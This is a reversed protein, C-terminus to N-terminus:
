DIRIVRYFRHAIAAPTDTVSATEGVANVPNGLTTWSPAALDDKYQVRYAYGPVASWTLSVSGSEFTATTFQLPGALTNQARPTWNTMFYYSNTNGDPFLGQSVNPYQADFYVIHQAVGGPTYLAIAEGNASLQFGAHLHGNTSTTNQFVQDDAWILLFGHAPIITGAPLTWKLTGPLDTLHFGGVNVANTNPNFLELWDQFLGDAPDPIGFPGENDAVWENITIPLHTGSGNNTVTISDTANTLRVGYNNVGQIVLANLGAYLPVQLSWATTSTWTIPYEVGNIEISKVALSATGTLTIANSTTSFGNGGNSTIAFAINPSVATNVANSVVTARQSIFALHGAFNQAPLLRGFHNAWRTMYNANYTTAMIDLLHCYYARANAPVAIMKTLDSNPIISANANFFADMDHPFYVVRGDSPRVYFQVNHAAGGDGGYSDGCGSLVNAATGRLWLDMDVYNTIQSNFAAGSLEMTKAFGMIRSYDDRDENNKLLFTWRYNEKNDGLNRITTGVVSDPNPIKYGEPTGDDTPPNLQYVLEYEFVTGDSGDNFQDDLFVDSYRALQLEASGTYEPRPAIVHILDHYKTPLGGAHNLTQHVLMERQGFGTSESRDIAVTNHVGRFRQESTFSVNFGLRPTTTRSHESGKLRLGVDYFVEREDYILTCGIRENSMLNINRFLEDADATLTVLRVNHLGNTAALDDDVKYLARSFRASAPFTSTAGLSDTGEIYFRVVTGGIRGPLTASFSGDPALTMVSNTWSGGNVASWLTMSSVGDPDQARTSISVPAFPAPVIPHHQLGAYTPGINPVFASNQAGPTGHLAPAELFTTRALRNFYLRTLLQRSGHLWKARFSILYERGNVTDRGGALTTEGHNSMHDTAGNAVLRLVKNGPQDPDDVVQGHHNGIIRWKDLTDFIGNQLMEVSNTVEIVSLDDILVEGKDLLGIVFERWQGDPGVASAAAIGRYSYTQWSSRTSEDSAAWAEGAANDAHPDRLELSAGGADAAEPWRGDDFYHVADAINDSPDKLVVREGRHSLSNTYPGLVYTGPFNASLAAPDKAVVLYGGAPIFTNSPFRYDIGEDIRWGTLNVANSSRNFLEVWQEPSDGFPVAPIAEVTALLEAGFAVDNSSVNAQHVEAALVNTGHVLNTLAVVVAPRFAGNPIQALARNTYSISGTTPLNFRTLERGNLYLIIGDDAVHRASLALLPPSGTYVFTTRFYHTTPGVAVETNKPAPLNNTGAYFLGAGVPWDSDDFDLTRWNTGRDIGLDDYRWLNTISVLANTGIVSPLELTPPGHYMIENIVIADSFAFTNSGGFSLSAPTAWEGTYNPSRGRAREHVEISDAIGGNPLLLFLKDGPAVGFPLSPQSVVLFDGPLVMAGPLVYAADDSSGSRALTYGGVNVPQSGRNALEFAFSTTSAPSIENFVLAGEEFLAPNPPFIDATLEVGFIMDPDGVAASQHVEVALVNHGQRLNAASVPLRGTFTAHGVPNSAPTDHTIAGVPMNVRRVEVGNLYFVAGDDVAANIFLAARAPDGGFNFAKRFYYTAAGLPAESGKLNADRFFQVESLGVFRNDGGPFNTLKDLKVFRASANGFDFIQSFDTQTGPAQTFTQGAIFNTLANTAAGLLIDARSVGRALLEPRGPLFENYNWVKMSRIAQLSGLDFTIFPNLDSAGNNLWMAGGPVIGHANGTLGSGDVARVALRGDPLYQTSATASVGSVQVPPVNDVEGSGAYILSTGTSWASDNLTRDRWIPDLDANSADFKWTEQVAILTRTEVAPLPTVIASLGAAFVMGADAPVAQHVEVALLNTGALLNATPLPIGTQLTTDDVNTAALTSYAVAGPAMNHRYVEVGNLYFVAGDDLALDLKLSTRAPDESFQFTNRFYYTTPGLPLPTRRLEDNATMRGDGSYYVASEPQSFDLPGRAGAALQGVQEPLLPKDWIAVDDISATSFGNGDPAWAGISLITSPNNNFPFGIATGEPVGDVYLTSGSSAFTIAIHHWNTGVVTAGTILAPAPGGSQRWVVRAAMPNANNLALINDSFQGNAQRGLVAGFTQCCDADQTGTWKVWMSITGNLAGNLGGGGPVSVYASNGTMALAAGAVGNRDAAPVVANVFTGNQGRVATANGDFPWYSVLTANNRGAWSSHDFGPARWAAGLDTGSAEYRWLANLPILARRVVTEPAPFNREGPTGNPMVSSTWNESPDSRLHPHRKALTAGSGDAATPWKGGDRYDLEDMLRDNRDRLELNGDSNNLRGVFPGVVNTIGSAQRLAAPESAIVLYGGGPIITGEPFTYEANGEIFWASLDIDIAMQNHLEIWENTAENSPPHYHVENFVVVSDVALACPAALLLALLRKM